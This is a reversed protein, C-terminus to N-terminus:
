VCIPVLGDVSFLSFRVSLSLPPCLLLFSLRLDLISPRPDLTPSRPDLTTCAHVQELVITGNSSFLRLPILISWNSRSHSVFIRFCFLLKEINLYSYMPAFKGTRRSMVQVNLVHLVFPVCCPLAPLSCSLPPSIHIHFRFNTVSSQASASSLTGTHQLTCAPTPWLKTHM